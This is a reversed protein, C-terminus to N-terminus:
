FAKVKLWQQIIQLTDRFYACSCQALCPSSDSKNQCYGPCEDGGHRNVRFIPGNYLHEFQGVRCALTTGCDHNFFFPKLTEKKRCKPAPQLPLSGSTGTLLISVLSEITLSAALANGDCV